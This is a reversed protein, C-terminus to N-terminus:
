RVSAPTGPVKCHRASYHIPCTPSNAPLYRIYNARLGIGYCFFAALRIGLLLGGYVLRQVLGESPNKM